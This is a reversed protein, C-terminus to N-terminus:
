RTVEFANKATEQLAVRALKFGERGLRADLIEFISLALNESTPVKDRFEPCDENLHKHDFRNYIEEDVIGNLLAPNVIFGTQGDPEGEVSVTLGFNHGHGARNSCIGFRDGNEADDLEPLALRHAAAFEYFHSVTMSAETQRVRVRRGEELELRVLSAGAVQKPFERWLYRALNEATPRNNTWFESSDPLWAGDLPLLLEGILPKLDAINVIMGDEGSITGGFSLELRYNAGHPGFDRGFAARNHAEDWDPHFLRRGLAFTAARSLLVQPM